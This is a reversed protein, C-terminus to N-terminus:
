GDTKWESDPGEDLSTISSFEYVGYPDNFQFQVMEDRTPVIDVDYKSLLTRLEAFFEIENQTQKKAM